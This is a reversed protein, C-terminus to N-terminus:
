ESEIHVETIIDGGRGFCLFKLPLLNLGLCIHLTCVIHNRLHFILMEIVHVLYSAM